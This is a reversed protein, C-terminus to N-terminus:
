QIIKEERLINKDIHSEKKEGDFHPVSAYSNHLVNNLIAHWFNNERALVVRLPSLFLISFDSFSFRLFFPHSDILCIPVEYLEGFLFRCSNRGTNAAPKSREAIIRHGILLLWLLFSRHSESTILNAFWRIKLSSICVKLSSNIRMDKM